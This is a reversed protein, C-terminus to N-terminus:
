RLHRLLKRCSWPSLGGSSRRELAVPVNYQKTHTKRAELYGEKEKTSRIKGGRKKKKVEEEKKINTVPKKREKRDLVSVPMYERIRYEQYKERKKESNLFM